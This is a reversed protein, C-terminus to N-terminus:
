CTCEKPWSLFDVCKSIPVTRTPHWNNYILRPNLVFYKKVKSYTNYAIKFKNSTFISSCSFCLEHWLFWLLSPYVWLHFCSADLHFLCPLCCCSVPLRAFLYLPPPAHGGLLLGSKPLLPQHNHVVIRISSTSSISRKEEKKSLFLCCVHSHLAIVSPYNVDIKGLM